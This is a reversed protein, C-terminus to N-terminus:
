IQWNNKLAELRPVLCSKTEDTESVFIKVKDGFKKEQVLLIDNTLSEGVLKSTTLGAYEYSVVYAQQTSSRSMRITKTSIGLVTADQVLGRKYLRYDRLAPLLGILLFPIGILLFVGPLIFFFQFPFSFPELSPIVSEKGLTKITITDGVKLRSVKDLDMTQFNDAVAGGAGPYTYSIVRPHENNITVNTLPEVSTISAVATTGQRTIHEFDYREYPQSLTHSLVLLLPVLILLPMLVFVLGLIGFPGRSKLLGWFTSFPVIRDPM